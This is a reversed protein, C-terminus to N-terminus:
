YSRLHDISNRNDASDLLLEIIEETVDNCPLRNEDAWWLFMMEYMM